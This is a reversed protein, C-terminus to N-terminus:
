KLVGAERYYREAGPHLPGGLDQAAKELTFEKGIDAHIAGIKKRGEPSNILKTIQYVVPEPIGANIVLIIGASVTPSDKEQGKYIGAPVVARTYGYQSSLKAVIEEKIPLVHLPRNLSIETFSPAPLSTFMIIAEGHGDQILSVADSASVFHVKGGWAKIDDYTIGYEKLVRRLVLESVNGRPNACLKLPYKKEKIEEWSRIGVKNLIGLQFYQTQIKALTRINNRHETFPEIGGSMAARVLEATTHGMQREGKHVLEINTISGGVTVTATTNPINQTIMEAIAAGVPYMTGGMPGMTIIIRNQGFASSATLCFMGLLCIGFLWNRKM